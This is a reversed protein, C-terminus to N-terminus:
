SIYWTILKIQCKIKKLYFIKRRACHKGIKPLPLFYYEIFGFNPKKILKKSEVAQVEKWVMTHKRM